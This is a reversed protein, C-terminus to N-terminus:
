KIPNSASSWPWSEPTECLGRKVPNNHIYEISNSIADDSWMNRDYGGGPQWFQYLSKSGSRLLQSQERVHPFTKLAYRGVPAKIHRIIKSIDYQEQTPWLLLHCHEPMIVYAHIELQHSEKVQNLNQIFYNAIEPITLYARRNKTSFTLEHAHGPTSYSKRTKAKDPYAPYM